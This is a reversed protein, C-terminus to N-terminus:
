HVIAVRKTHGGSTRCRHDSTRPQMRGQGRVFRAITQKAERQAQLLGKRAIAAEHVTIQRRRLHHRHLVHYAM